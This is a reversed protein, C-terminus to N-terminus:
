YGGLAYALADMTESNKSVPVPSLRRVPSFMNDYREKSTGFVIQGVYKRHTYLFGLSAVIVAVFIVCTWTKMVM